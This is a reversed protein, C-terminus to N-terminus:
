ASDNRALEELLLDVQEDPIQDIRNLLEQDLNPQHQDALGSSANSEQRLRDGLALALQPITPMEFLDRFYVSVGFSERLRNAVRLALLSDGGLEFFKDDMSVDSVALVERWIRVIQLETETGPPIRKKAATEPNWKPSTENRDALAAPPVNVLRCRTKTGFHDRVDIGEVRPAIGAGEQLTYYGSLVRLPFPRQATHRQVHPSALDLGIALQHQHRLLGAIMSDLAQSVSMVSYGMHRFAEAVAAPGAESM